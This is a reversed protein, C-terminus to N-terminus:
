IVELELGLARLVAVVHDIRANPKGGRELAGGIFRVSVGGALAAVDEQTLELARRRDRIAAGIVSADM